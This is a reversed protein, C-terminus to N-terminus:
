LPSRKRKKLIDSDIKKKKLIDSDVQAWIHISYFERNEKTAKLLQHVEFSEYASLLLPPVTFWPACYILANIELDDQPFETAAEDTSTNITVGNM